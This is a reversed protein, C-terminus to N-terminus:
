VHERYFRSNCFKEPSQAKPINHAQCYAAWLEGSESQTDLEFDECLTLAQKATLKEVSQVHFADQLYNSAGRTMTANM